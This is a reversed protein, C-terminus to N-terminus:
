SDGTTCTHGAVAKEQSLEYQEEEGEGGEVPEEDKNEFIVTVGGWGGGYSSRYSGTAQAEHAM